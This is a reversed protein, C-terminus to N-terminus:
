EFEQLSTLIAGAKKMEEIAKQCDGKKADIGWIADTLLYTEFSLRRADLVTQKVCYDTALGGVFLRQTGKRKLYLELNTGEFGSYADTEPRIAKSIVEADHPLKLGPHFEAGPSNQTCHDPWSGGQKKFSCHNRPHWDRTAYVGSRTKGFLELYRNLVPVIEDGGKIPLAGGPCFDNQVDVVILASQCDPPNIIKKM